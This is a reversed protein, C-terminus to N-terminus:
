VDRTDISRHDSVLNEYPSPAQQAYLRLLKEVFARSDAWIGTVAISKPSIIPCASACSRGDRAAPASWGAAARAAHTAKLPAGPTNGAPGQLHAPDRRSGSERGPWHVGAFLLSEVGGPLDLAGAVLIQCEPHQGAILLRVVAPDALEPAAVETSELIQVAARFGTAVNLDQPQALLGPHHAQAMHRKVAGLNLGIGALVLGHAVFLLLPPPHV